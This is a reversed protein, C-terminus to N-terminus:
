LGSSLRSTTYMPMLLPKVEGMHFKKLVDKTYKGQHVFTRDQTKKTQLGIFLNLEGMKSMYFERSMTDLFMSVLAHSFGGFIIDVMYIQVLLTDNGMKLGKALL